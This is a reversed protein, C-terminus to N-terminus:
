KINGKKWVKGIDRRKQIEQKYIGQWMLGQYWDLMKKEIFGKKTSLMLSKVKLNTMICKSSVQWNYFICNYYFLKKIISISVNEQDM